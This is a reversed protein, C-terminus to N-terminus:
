CVIRGLLNQQVWMWALFTLIGGFHLYAVIAFYVWILVFAPHRWRFVPWGALAVWIAMPGILPDSSVFGGFVLALEIVIGNLTRLRFRFRPM